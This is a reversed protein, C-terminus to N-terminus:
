LMLAKNEGDSTNVVMNLPEYGIFQISLSYAKAILSDFAFQGTTNTITRYASDNLAVQAGIIYEKTSADILQGKITIVQAFSHSLSMLFILIVTLNTKM